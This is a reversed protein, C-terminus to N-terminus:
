YPIPSNWSQEFISVNTVYSSVYRMLGRVQDRPRSLTMASLSCKIHFVLRKSSLYLLLMSLVVEGEASRIVYLAMLQKNRVDHLMFISQVNYPCPKGLIDMLHDIVDRFLPMFRRHEDLREIVSSVYSSLEDVIIVQGTPIHDVASWFFADVRCPLQLSFRKWLKSCSFLAHTAYFIVSLSWWSPKSM